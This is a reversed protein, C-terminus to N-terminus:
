IIIYIKGGHKLYPWRIEGDAMNVDKKLSPICEYVRGKIEIKIKLQTMTGIKNKLSLMKKEKIKKLKMYIIYIYIVEKIRYLFIYSIFLFFVIHPKARVNGINIM